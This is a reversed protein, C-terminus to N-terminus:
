ELARFGFLPRYQWEFDALKLSPMRQLLTNIAIQAELRALSSGLCVHHGHGFSLHQNPSRTIDFVDPNTFISPDRNAAGLL